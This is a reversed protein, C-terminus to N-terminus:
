HQISILLCIKKWMYCMYYKNSCLKHGIVLLVVQLDRCSKYKWNQKKERRGREKRYSVDLYIITIVLRLNNVRKIVHVSGVYTPSTCFINGYFCITVVAAMVTCHSTVRSATDDLFWKTVIIIILPLNLHCVKQKISCFSDMIFIHSARLFTFYFLALIRKSKLDIKFGVVHTHHTNRVVFAFLWIHCTM